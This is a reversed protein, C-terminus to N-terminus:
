RGFLRKTTLGIAVAALGLGALPLAMGVGTQPITETSETMTAAAATARPGVLSVADININAEKLRTPFKKHVRIFVTLKDSTATVGKAYGSFVGPKLREYEPWDDMETWETVAWPDTGGDFDYGVEIRYNYRSRHASGETSRVMGYFSFMYRKGPVVNAVQYIGSYRDKIGGVGDTAIEILQSHGGDYVVKEWTDDHYSFHTYGGNNFANWHKAVGMDYEEEFSGNLLVNVSDASATIGLALSLVLSLLLVFAWHKKM